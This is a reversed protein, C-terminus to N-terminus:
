NICDVARNLLFKLSFFEPVGSSRGDTENVPETSLAAGRSIEWSGRADLVAPSDFVPKEAEKPQNEAMGRALACLRDAELRLEYRLQKWNRIKGGKEVVIVKDFGKIRVDRVM